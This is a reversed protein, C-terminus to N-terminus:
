NFTVACNRNGITVRCVLESCFWHPVCLSPNFFFFVFLCFQRPSWIWTISFGWLGLLLKTRARSNLKAWGQAALQTIVPHLKQGTLFLPKFRRSLCPHTERSLHWLRRGAVLGVLAQARPAARPLTPPQQLYLQWAWLEPLMAGGSSHSGLLQRGTCSHGLWGCSYEDSSNFHM